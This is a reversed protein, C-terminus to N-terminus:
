RASSCSIQHFIILPLVILGVAKTGFTDVPRRKLV